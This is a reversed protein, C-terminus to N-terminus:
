LQGKAAKKSAVQFATSYDDESEEPSKGKAIKGSTATAAHLKKKKELKDKDKEQKDKVQQKAREEKYHRLVAVNDLPNDFYALRQIAESQKDLWGWFEPNLVRENNEDIKDGDYIIDQYDPVMRAVILETQLTKIAQDQVDLREQVTDNIEVSAGDKQAARIIKQTVSLLENGIDGILDKESETFKISELLKKPDLEEAESEEDLEQAKKKPAKKTPPGEEKEREKKEKMIDDLRKARKELEKKTASEEEGEKGKGEEGGGEEKGSEEEKTDKGDRKGPKDKDGEKSKEESKKDDDADPDETDDKKNKTAVKFHSSFEEDGEEGEKEEGEERKEEEKVELEEKEELKPSEEEKPM